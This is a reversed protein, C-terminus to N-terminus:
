NNWDLTLEIEDLQIENEKEDLLQQELKEIEYLEDIVSHYETDDWRSNKNDFSYSM